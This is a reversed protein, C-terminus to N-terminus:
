HGHIRGLSTLTINTEFIVFCSFISQFGGVHLSDDFSCCDEDGGVDVLFFALQLLTALNLLVLFFHELRVQIDLEDWQVNRFFFNLLYESLSARNDRDFELVVLDVLESQHRWLILNSVHKVLVHLLGLLGDLKEILDSSEEWFLHFGEFDIEPLGLVLSLFGNTVFVDIVDGLQYVEDLLLVTLTVVWRSSRSHLSAGTSVATLGLSVVIITLLVVATAISSSVLLSTATSIVGVSTASTVELSTTALTVVLVVVLVPLVIVIALHSSATILLLLVGVHLLWHTHLTLIWALLLHTLLWRLLWWHTLLLRLLLLHHLLLLLLLRRHLLFIHQLKRLHVNSLEVSQLTIVSVVEDTVVNVLGNVAGITFLVSGGDSTHEEILRGNVELQQEGVVLVELGLSTLGELQKNLGLLVLILHLLHLRSRLHVLSFASVVM